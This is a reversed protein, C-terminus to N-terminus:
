LLRVSKDVVTTIERVRLEEDKSLSLLQLKRDSLLCPILIINTEFCCIM